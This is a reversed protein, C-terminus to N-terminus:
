RKRAIRLGAGCIKCNGLSEGSPITGKHSETVDGCGICRIEWTWVQSIGMSEVTSWELGAVSCLNQLRYDDTHMRGRKEMALALLGLDTEALGVLDGTERALDTAEKLSIESPSNWNLCAAEISLIRDPAIRLVEAWQGDVVFGNKLSDVPWSVLAATDLVDVGSM